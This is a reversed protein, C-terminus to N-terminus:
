SAILLVVAAAVVFSAIAGWYMLTTFGSYTGRHGEMEFGSGQDGAM